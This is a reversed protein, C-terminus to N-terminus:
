SLSIALYVYHQHSAQASKSCSFKWAGRLHNKEVGVGHEAWGTERRIRETKWEVWLRVSQVCSLQLSKIM